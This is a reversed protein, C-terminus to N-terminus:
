WFWYRIKTFIYVGIGILVIIIGAVCGYLVIKLDVELKTERIQYEGATTLRLMKMNDVKLLEYKGKAENYLYLYEGNNENLCM